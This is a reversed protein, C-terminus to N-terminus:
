KLSSGSSAWVRCTTAKGKFNRKIGGGRWILHQEKSNMQELFETRVEPAGETQLKSIADGQHHKTHKDTRQIEWLSMAPDSHIYPIM